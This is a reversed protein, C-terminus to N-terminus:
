KGPLAKKFLRREGTTMDRVTIIRVIGKGQSRFVVFLYRGEYSQGYLEFIGATKRVHSTKSRLVVDVEVLRIGHKCEIKDAVERSCEIQEIRM